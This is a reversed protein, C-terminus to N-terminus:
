KLQSRPNISYFHFIKVTMSYFLYLLLTYVAGWIGYVPLLILLLIIKLLNSSINIIYLSRKQLHAVLAQGFLLEPIFILSIALWQAYIVSDLYTPFLLQFITPLALILLAALMVGAGFV